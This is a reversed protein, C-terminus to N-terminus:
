GDVDGITARMSARAQSALVRATVAKVGLIGAADESRYGLLDTLILAARQRPTLGALGAEVLNRADAADFPSEEAEAPKARAAVSRRRLGSRYRNLATRFLYGVPDDLSRVRDWREWVRVMADQTLEEAEHPDRTIVCLAGYLRDGHAEFFEQFSGVEPAAETVASVSM